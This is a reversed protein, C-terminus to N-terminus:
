RKLTFHTKITEGNHLELLCWYDDALLKKGSLSGNWGITNSALTKLLKGYRNFIYIIKIENKPDKVEWYDHNGDGNPTFFKPIEIIRNETTFRNEECNTANGLANYPTITVYINSEDPLDVPPNYASVNGADVANAIDTGGSTTGITVLYGTTNPILNWSINSNVAVNESNNLPATISTCNPPTKETTFYKESCNPANGELNYPTITTYITTESPLPSTPTYTTVNGLDRGNEIDTGGSTTGLSIFYGTANTVASWRISTNVSINTTRNLPSLFSICPPLLNETTFNEENCGLSKGSANYPTITVYITTQGDFKSSPTYTTTNGVDINNAIDTGGSTTGVNIFYGTANVDADWSISSTVSINNEGNRPNSMTTCSTKLFATKFTEEDCNQIAEGLDNYPIVLVHITQNEPFNTSPTFTTTNGVDLKNAFETGAPFTGVTIYYGKANSVPRWSISSSINVDTEGNSPSVLDTCLPLITETTFKKEICGMASGITNYPTITVYIDSESPYNVTPVYTTTNGLDLNNAIDTGGSTTGINIFYGSANVVNNWSLNSNVAVNSSNNIPSFFSTCSPPSLKQTRFREQGCSTASGLANYPIISVYIYSDEPFDTTPNYITNNGVDLNNAIETGGYTTGVNIIYGVADTVARWSLNNSVSINSSNNLPSNLRTCNPVYATSKYTTLPSTKKEIVKNKNNINSYYLKKHRTKTETKSNSLTIAQVNFINIFVFSFSLVM